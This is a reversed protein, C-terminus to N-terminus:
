RLGLLPYTYMRVMRLKTVVVGNPIIWEITSRM